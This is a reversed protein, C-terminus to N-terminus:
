VRLFFLSLQLGLSGTPDVLHYSESDTSGVVREFNGRVYAFLERRGGSPPPPPLRGAGSTVAKLAELARAEAGTAPRPRGFGARRGGCRVAWRPAELLPGAWRLRDCELAVRGAGNLESVGIPLDIIVPVAGAAQQLCLTIRHDREHPRCFFTGAVHAAVASPSSSASSYSQPFFLFPKCPLLLADALCSFARWWRAEGGSDDAAAERSPTDAM